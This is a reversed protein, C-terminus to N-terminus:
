INQTCFIIYILKNTVRLLVNRYPFMIHQKIDDNFYSDSFVYACDYYNTVMWLYCFETWIAYVISWLLINLLICFM